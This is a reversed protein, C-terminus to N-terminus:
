QLTIKVVGIGKGTLSPNIELEFENQDEPVKYVLEGKVKRGAGLSGDVQGKADEVIAINHSTGELDVLKFMMVSSIAEEESGTNEVTTNIYVYKIGEPAKIFDGGKSTRTEHVTFQLDGMKITDGINFVETKPSEESQSQNEVDPNDVKEPTSDRGCAVLALGLVLTIISLLLKKM